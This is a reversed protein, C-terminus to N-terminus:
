TFGQSMESMCQTRTSEGFAATPKRQQRMGDDSLLLTYRVIQVRGRWGWDHLVSVPGSMSKTRRARSPLRHALARVPPLGPRYTEHPRHSSSDSRAHITKPSRRHGKALPPSRSLVRTRKRVGARRARATAGGAVITRQQDPDNRSSRHLNFNYTTLTFYIPPPAHVLCAPASFPL